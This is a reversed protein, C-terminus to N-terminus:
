GMLEQQFVYELCPDRNDLYDQFTVRMEVDPFFSRVKNSKILKYYQTSYRIEVKSNNLKFSQVEGYCNPKGGSPEGLFIAKTKNKFAYANLLASSFTDRGLIVYLAGEKNIKENKKIKEILPELLTSNGGLNNRLDVIFRDVEPSEIQHMVKEIFADISLDKRERCSNYKFYLTKNEGILDSWYAHDRNRRYLPLAPEDASTKTNIEYFANSSITSVKRQFLNGDTGRLDLEVEKTEDLIELGYLIEAACLYNPLQSKLFSENEYSIVKKLLGVVEEIPVGNIGEIKNHISGAQEDSAAIIYIGEEFWYVKIPLFATAPFVVSTHADRAAATIKCLSVLVELNDLKDLNSKLRNLKNHFPQSKTRYFFNAHKEPLEAGLQDIDLKWKEIRTNEM